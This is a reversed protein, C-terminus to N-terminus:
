PLSVLLQDDPTVDDDRDDIDAAVLHAQPDLCRGGNWDVPFLNEDRDLFLRM